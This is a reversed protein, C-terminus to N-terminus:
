NSFHADDVCTLALASVMCLIDNDPLELSLIASYVNESLAFIYGVTTKIVQYPVGLISSPEVTTVLVRQGRATATTFLDM